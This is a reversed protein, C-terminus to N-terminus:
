GNRIRAMEAAMYKAMGEDDPRLGLGDAILIYLPEIEVSAFGVSVKMERSIKQALAMSHKRKWLERLMTFPMSYESAQANLGMLPGALLAHFYRYLRWEQTAKINVLLLDADSLAALRAKLDPAGSGVLTAYVARLKDDPPASWRSLAEIAGEVDAAAMAGNIADAMGGSSADKEDTGAEMGMSSQLANIAFRVDGGSAKVIDKLKRFPVNMGEALIIHKLLLELERLPVRYFSLVTCKGRLKKMFEPSGDNAALILPMEMKDLVNLLFEAGGYDGRAFLGDVEDLFILIRKGELDVPPIGNLRRDLEGATRTDSANLEVVRYGADAAVARAATTKGTGAPGMLLVPKRGVSWGRLWGNLEKRRDENGILRNLTLPRYKEVWSL